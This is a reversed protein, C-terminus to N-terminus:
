QIALASEKREYYRVKQRWKKEITVARKRRTEARKLMQKAHLTKSAAAMMVDIHRPEAPEPKPTVRLSGQLWGRRKAERIM